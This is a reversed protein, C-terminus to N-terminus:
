FAFLWIVLFLCVFVGDGGYSVVVKIKGSYCQMKLHFEIGYKM